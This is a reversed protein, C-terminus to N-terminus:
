IGSLKKQEKAVLLDRYLNKLMRDTETAEKELDKGGGKLWYVMNRLGKKKAANLIVQNATLADLINTEVESPSGVGIAVNQIDSEINKNILSITDRAEKVSITDRGGLTTLARISDLTQVTGAVTAQVAEATAQLPMTPKTTGLKSFPREIEEKAVAKQQLEGFGEETRLAIEEETKPLPGQEQDKGIAEKVKENFRAEEVKKNILIKEELEKEPLNTVDEGTSTITRKLPQKDGQRLAEMTRKTKIRKGNEFIHKVVM